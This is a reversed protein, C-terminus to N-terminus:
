FLLEGQNTNVLGPVGVGIGLLRLNREEAVSLAHDILKEAESIVEIQTKTLPFEVWERWLINALFDTLIVSIFGVGIDVGVVAGAEPRLALAVGPRGIKSELMDLELVLGDGLLVNIINSITSPNLKTISALEARSIPSRLRLANLVISTNVKRISEQDATRKNLM